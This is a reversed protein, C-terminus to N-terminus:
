LKSKINHGGCCDREWEVSYLRTGKKSKAFEIAEEKTSFGALCEHDDHGSQHHETWKGSGVKWVYWTVKVGDPVTSNSILVNANSTQNQTRRPM